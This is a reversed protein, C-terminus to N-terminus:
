HLSAVVALPIIVFCLLFCILTVLVSTYYLVLGYIRARRSKFRVMDTCWYFVCCPISSIVFLPPILCCLISLMISFFCLSRARQDEKFTKAFPSSKSILVMQNMEEDPINGAEEMHNMYYYKTFYDYSYQEEQIVMSRNGSLLKDTINLLETELQILNLLFTNKMGKLTRNSNVTESNVITNVVASAMQQPISPPPNEEEGGMPAGVLDVVTHDQKPISAVDEVSTSVVVTNLVKEDERSSSSSAETVSKM